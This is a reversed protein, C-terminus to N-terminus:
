RGALLLAVFGWVVLVGGTLRSATRGFPMLKEVCVVVTLVAMWVWSMTGLVLPLLMLAWCCALCHTGHALGMRFAGTPGDHWQRVFYGLPNRCHRLCSDKLASLQFAGAVVLAAGQGVSGLHSERLGSAHLALQASAASVSFVIWVALYGAVFLATPLWASLRGRGRSAAAFLLVWPLVAPLMMAIMMVTWMGSALALTGADFPPAHSGSVAGPRHLQLGVLLAWSAASLLALSTYVVARESSSPVPVSTGIM